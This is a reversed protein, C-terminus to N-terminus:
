LVLDGNESISFTYVSDTTYVQIMGEKEGWKGTGEVLNALGDATYVTETFDVTYDSYLTLTLKQSKYTYLVSKMEEETGTEGCIECTGDVFKHGIPDFYTESIIYGCDSCIERINGSETCTAGVGDSYVNEHLCETPLEPEVIEGDYGAGCVVCIKDEGFRHGFAEIYEDSIIEKCEACIIRDYGSETCTADIRDVLTKEHNCETEEYPLLEGSEALVIFVREKGNLLKAYIKGDVMFWSSEGSERSVTGDATYVTETFLSTNDSYLYLMLEESAYTYLIEKEETVDKEGCRTCTGDVFDHGLADTYDSEYSYGCEYCTYVTYGGDECTPDVPKRELKEHKCAETVDKEGCITCTGDAFDHGFAEIYEDSIIEKCEACIIRDYGSETCTADIRDVLTKEHQCTEPDTVDSDVTKLINYIMDDFMQKYMELTEVTDANQMGEIISFYQNEFSAITSASVGKDFLSQWENHSKAVAEDILQGLEVDSGGEEYPILEGSETATFVFENFDTYVYIKGDESASWSGEGEIFDLEGDADLDFGYEAFYVSNDSYLVLSIEDSDYRYLIEKEETVDKEGCRTCEGDVFDHGLADTYDSEYSYGCEYCTYVTYGGDECTPDVPKRELKEHKCAETVDKEGCITCTGDAFDHGFAEIYEDSIIEKCEACIIRYYGSETCTADIRDVLTKEHNCESPLEPDVIDGGAVDDLSGIRGVLFNQIYQCDLMDIIGNKDIDAARRQMETLAFQENVMSRQIILLDALNVILDANVDGMIISESISIYGLNFAAGVIEVNENVLQYDYCEATASQESYDNVTFNISFLVIDSFNTPSSFSVDVINDTINSEFVGNESINLLSDSEVVETVTVFSPMAITMRFSSYADGATAVEFSYIQGDLSADDTSITIGDSHINATRYSDNGAIIDYIDGNTESAFEDTAEAAFASMPSLALLATFALILMIILSIKKFRKM